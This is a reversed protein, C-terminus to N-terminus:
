GASVWFIGGRGVQTVLRGPRASRLCESTATATSMLSPKENRADIITWKFTPIGATPQHLSIFSVHLQSTPVVHVPQHALQMSLVSYYIIIIIINQMHVVVGCTLPSPVGLRNILPM